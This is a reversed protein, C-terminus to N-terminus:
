EPGVVKFIREGTVTRGSLRDSVEVQLRYDGPEDTAVELSMYEPVRDGTLEVLREYTLEIEEDDALGLM